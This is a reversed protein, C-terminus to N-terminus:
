QKKPFVFLSLTYFIAPLPIIWAVELSFLWMLAVGLALSLLKRTGIVEVCAFLVLGVFFIELYDIKM